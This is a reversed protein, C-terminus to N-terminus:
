GGVATTAGSNTDSKVMIKFVSSVPNESSKVWIVWLIFLTNHLVRLVNYKCDNHLHLAKFVVLHKPFVFLCM